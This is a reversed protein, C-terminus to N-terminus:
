YGQTSYDQISDLIIVVLQTFLYQVVTKYQPRIRTRLQFLLRFLKEEKINM